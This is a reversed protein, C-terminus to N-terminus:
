FNVVALAGLEVCCRAFSLLTFDCIMGLDTSDELSNGGVVGCLDKVQVQLSTDNKLAGLISMLAPCTEQRVTLGRLKGEELVVSNRENPTSVRVLSELVLQSAADYGVVDECRKRRRSQDALLKNRRENTHTNHISYKTQLNHEMLAPSVQSKILAMAQDLQQHVTSSVSSACYETSPGVPLAKRFDPVKNLIQRITDALVVSLCWDHTAIAITLHFSPLFHDKQNTETTAEHVFGRPMYLVDGPCLEVEKGFCLDGSLVSSPVAKGNKGVQENEFPSEVPVNNYVKWTKQGLIQIVLVDRDDAHAEVAYGNPPTLYANAYVHPFTNQLENCLKAVHPSHFDAHNVIISCADLYAAHPNCSCISQPDIIPQGQQFFLLDNVDSEGNSSSRRCHHLLDAVDNWGMNLAESLVREAQYKQRSVHFIAPQRQWIQRFFDLAPECDPTEADCNIALECPSSAIADFVSKTPSACSM